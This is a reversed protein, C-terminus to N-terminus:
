GQALRERFAATMAKLEEDSKKEFEPELANIEAVTRLKAKVKRDNASGFIRSVKLGLM